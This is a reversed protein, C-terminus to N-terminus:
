KEKPEVRAIISSKKRRDIEKGNQWVENPCTEQLSREGMGLLIFVVPTCIIQQFSVMNHVTYSIICVTSVLVLGKRKGAQLQRWVASVFAAAYASLGLIGINVLITLWENHANTLRANGFVNHLQQAIEEVGYVYLYFCDPGIGVLKRGASMTRFADTGAKWTTGRSNGWDSDIIFIQATKSNQAAEPNMSYYVFLAGVAVAMALVLGAIVNRLFRFQRIRLHKYKILYHMIAYGVATVILVPVINSFETLKEELVDQYNLRAPFWSKLIGVGFASAAFLVLLEMWRLLKEEERFSLGFLVAVMAGLALFGSSSGQVIGTMFGVIIYLILGAKKWVTNGEGLWYLVLGIPFVAMWYSCFWNINGLTSIFIPNAGEMQIPYVSFRNLFGLLFIAFSVVLFIGYWIREKELFRSVAFYVAVFMLQTITGMYWGDTGWLANDKWDTCLFSLIVAAGYVLMAADTVSWRIKEKKKWKIYLLVLVAPVLLVGFIIGAGQFLQFKNIGIDIYGEPAYFPSVVVLVLLYLSVISRAYDTIGKEWSKQEKKKATYRKRKNAM